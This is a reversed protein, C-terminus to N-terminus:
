VAPTAPEFGAGGVLCLRVFGSKHPKKKTLTKRTLSLLPPSTVDPMQPNKQDFSNSDGAPFSIQQEGRM